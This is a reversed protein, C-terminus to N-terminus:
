VAEGGSITITVGTASAKVQITDNHYMIQVGSWSFTDNAAVDYEYFIANATGASGDSPVLCVTATLAGATTNCIVIDKVFTRTSTPVTYVSAFATTLAVQAIKVPTINNFAM